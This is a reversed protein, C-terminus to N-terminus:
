IPKQWRGGKGKQIQQFFGYALFSVSAQIESLCRVLHCMGQSPLQMTLHQQVIIRPLKLLSM